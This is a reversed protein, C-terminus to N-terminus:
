THCYYERFIKGDKWETVVTQKSLMTSGDKLKLLTDYFSHNGSIAYNNLKNHM